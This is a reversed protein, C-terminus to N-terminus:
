PSCYIFYKYKNKNWRPSLFVLGCNQCISVFTPFLYQGVKSINEPRNNGCLICNIDILSEDM